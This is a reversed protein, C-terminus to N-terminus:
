KRTVIEIVDRNKLVYEKGVTRKTKVDIARIFGEGIDTHLHFAFDLATSGGKLLFCDPLVNGDKDELKNLGGPFIAIMKLVDFVVTDLVKQVGTSGYVDLVNKQIFELAAKQKPSPSGVLDFTMNGPAYKIIGQKSAERLALEADASCPVFIYDPFQSVVRKLNDVAGNVDIKNAAIVLPKTRKRLNTALLKLDDDSWKEIDENLKLEVIASKAIEETVKIGSLQKAMARSVNSNEQKVQRVFKEWGKKTMGFIWMDIENELFRIDNAPDYSLPEVAEGKENTSGSVDIIHILADATAIDSLFENGRGLGLHSGEILGPTDILKIPVYRKGNSCFGQRPNCTVRFERDVCDLSVFSVGETSKLTTFPYNAIAVDALTCAKFFTSKGVSPKGCLAILM